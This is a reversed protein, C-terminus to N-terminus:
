FEAAGSCFYLCPTCKAPLYFCKLACKVIALCNLNWTKFGFHFVYVHFPFLYSCGQWFATDLASAAKQHPRSYWRGPFRLGCTEVTTLAGLCLACCSSRWHRLSSSELVQAMLKKGRVSLSCSHADLASEAGHVAACFLLAAHFRVSTACTKCESDPQKLSSCSASRPWTDRWWCPRFKPPM